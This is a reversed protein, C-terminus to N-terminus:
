TVDLEYKGVQYRLQELEAHVPQSKAAELAMMEKTWDEHWFRFCWTLVPKCLRSAVRHLLRRQAAKVEWLECWASWGRVLDQNLIRRAIQRRLMEVREEKNREALAKQREDYTGTLEVAQRKLALQMKMEALGAREEAAEEFRALASLAEDREAALREERANTAENLQKQAQTRNARGWDDKWASFAASREPQRLRSAVRHLVRQSQVRDTWVECWATWGRAIDRRLVRRAFMGGLHEIRQERERAEKAAQAELQSLLSGQTDAETTAVRKELEIRKELEAQLSAVRAKLGDREDRLSAERGAATSRLAARQQAAAAQTWDLSWQKFSAVLAPRRIRSM